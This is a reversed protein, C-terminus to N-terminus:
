LVRNCALRVLIFLNPLNVLARLGVKKASHSDAVIVAMMSTTLTLALRKVQEAAVGAPTTSTAM